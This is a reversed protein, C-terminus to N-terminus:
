GYLLACVSYQQAQSLTSSQSTSTTARHSHTVTLRAADLLDQCSLLCLRSTRFGAHAMQLAEGKGRVKEVVKIRYLIWSWSSFLRSLLLHKTTLKSAVALGPM